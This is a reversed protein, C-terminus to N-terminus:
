QVLVLPKLIALRRQGRLLILLEPWENPSEGLEFEPMRRRPRHCNAKHAAPELDEIQRDEPRHQHNIPQYQKRQRTLSQSVM